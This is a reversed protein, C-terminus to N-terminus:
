HGIPWWRSIRQMNAVSSKSHDSFTSLATFFQRKGLLFLVLATNKLKLPSPSTWHLLRGIHLVQFSFLFNQSISSWLERKLDDHIQNLQIDARKLNSVEFLQQKLRILEKAPHSYHLSTSQIATAVKQKLVYPFAGSGFFTKVHIDCLDGEGGDWLPRAPIKKTLATIQTVESVTLRDTLLNDSPGREQKLWCWRWVGEKWLESGTDWEPAMKCM